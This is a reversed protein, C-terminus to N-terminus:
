QKNDHRVQTIPQQQEEEETNATRDSQLAVCKRQGYLTRNEPAQKWGEENDAHPVIKSTLQKQLLHKAHMRAEQRTHARM